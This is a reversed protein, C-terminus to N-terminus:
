DARRVARATRSNTKSEHSVSGAGTELSWARLNDGSFTSSSWWADSSHHVGFIADLCGPLCGPNLMGQLEGITPLRWDCHGAFGGSTSIGDTSVCNNLEGLFMTFVTGDAWGGGTLWSYTNDIDHVTSDDTKKEWQLGTLNDTVTGDGNDVWRPSGGALGVVANVCDDVQTEITAADGTTLCGDDLYSKAEAKAYTSSFKVEAKAICTSDVMLGKTVAKAHCTLKSAAKKGAAKIKDGSCKSAAFTGRAAALAFVFGLTTVIVRKFRM